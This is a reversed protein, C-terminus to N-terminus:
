PAGANRGARRSARRRPRDAVVEPSPSTSPSARGLADWLEMASEFREAVKPRLARALIEGIEGYDTALGQTAKAPVGLAIEEFSYQSVRGQLICLLLLGAQYIDVRHDMPGCETPSLYEPPVLWRSIKTNLVDVKGLLTDAALDGLKFPGGSAGRFVNRPHLNRHTHGARHAADLAGLLPGAVDLLARRGDWGPSALEHDLRREGPEHVLHFCGEHEFGDFLALLGPHDLQRLEGAQEIWRERVNEYSRSFPWLVQLIRPAGEDDRCSFFYGLKGRAIRAEVAYTREGNRILAGPPYEQFM